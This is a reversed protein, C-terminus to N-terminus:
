LFLIKYFQDLFDNFLILYRGFLSNNLVDKGGGGGQHERRPWLLQHSDRRRRSDLAQMEKEQVEATVADMEMSEEGVELDGGMEDGVLSM